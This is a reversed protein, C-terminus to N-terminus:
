AQRSLVAHVADWALTACKVRSPFRWVGSFATLAGLSGPDPPPELGLVLNRFDQYLTDIGAATKGILAEAMLSASAKSIACGAGEFAIGRVVGSEDVRLYIRYSDGCLPNDAAVACTHPELKGFHRPHRSHQLIIEQYLDDTTNM